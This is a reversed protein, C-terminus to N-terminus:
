PTFVVELGSSTNFGNGCPGGLPDRYWLQFRRTDGAQWGGQTGLGPGWAAAGSADPTRVGLRM